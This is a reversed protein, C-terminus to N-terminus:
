KAGRPPNLVDQGRFRRGRVGGDERFDGAAVGVLGVEDDGAVAGAEGDQVFIGVGAAMQHDNGVLLGRIEVAERVLFEAVEQFEDAAALVGEGGDHFGLAEVDADVEAMGGARADLRM